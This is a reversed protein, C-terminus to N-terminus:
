SIDQVKDLRVNMLVKLIEKPSMKGELTVVTKSGKGSIAEHMQNEDFNFETHEIHQAVALM